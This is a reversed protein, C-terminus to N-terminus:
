SLIQPAFCTQQVQPVSGKPLVAFSQEILVTDGQVLQFTWTGQVLEYEHEFTFLNLLTQGPAVDAGWREVTVGADGMPPHQVVVTLAEPVSNEAIQARIGFSLGREAPVASTTVDIPKSQEIINLIGSETGPAPRTGEPDVQCIVGHDILTVLAADSGSEAQAMAACLSVAAAFRLVTM